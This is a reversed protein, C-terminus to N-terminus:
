LEVWSGGCNTNILLRSWTGAAKDGTDMSRSAPLFLYIREPRKRSTIHRISQGRNPRRIM